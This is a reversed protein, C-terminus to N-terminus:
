QPDGAANQKQEWPDNEEVSTGRAHRVTYAIPGGLPLAVGGAIVRYAPNFRRLGAIEGRRLDERWDAPLHLNHISLRYAEINILDGRLADRRFRLDFKFQDWEPM